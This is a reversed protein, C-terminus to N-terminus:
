LAKEEFKLSSAVASSLQVRDRFDKASQFPGRNRETIWHTIADESIGPILRLIGVPATNLDFLLPATKGFIEIKIPRDPVTCAIEPGLRSFLIEPKELVQERWRRRAATIADINMRKRDIHLAALYHERWLRQAEPDVFVGHSLDNLVDVIAAKEDPFMKMYEIVFHVLWPKADVSKVSEFMAALARLVHEYRARLVAESPIDEGRMLFLFFFSGYFGESQLLQNADRLKSFDRTKELQVRLYDPTECASEFAFNNDRVDDYRAFNQSYSTLDASHRFYEASKWPGEGFNITERHYPRRLKPAKAVHASLTELHIAWGESFATSRDSLAATSHPISAMEQGDLQRGGALLAMVMHGSEHLLTMGFQSEDPDLLIYPQGQFENTREGSVLRFGVGAHNGGSVLAVYYDNSGEARRAVSLARRYFRLAREASENKMWVAYHEQDTAVRYLPMTERIETQKTDVSAVPELFVVHALPEQGAAAMALLVALGGALVRKRQFTNGACTVSQFGMRDASTSKM